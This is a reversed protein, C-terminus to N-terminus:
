VPVIAALGFPARRVPAAKDRALWMARAMRDAEGPDAARGLTALALAATAIVIEDAHEFRRTGRWCEPLADENEIRADAAQVPLAPWEEEVPIGERLGSVHCAKASNREFEGGGGKIVSVNSLGLRQAARQQLERYAPHFVGVVLCRAGFPNLLRALSNAPSRLGLLPRLGLIAHVTPCFASLPLYAFNETRLRTAADGMSATPAIGLTALARAATSREADFGHMLIRVGNQALLLASLVYWAPGRTRGAAYSPWDLDPAADPVAQDPDIRLARAFGALEEASERKYRMLMLLAGLQVPEVEGARIMQMAEYAEDESLSRARGPGVGLIRIWRAFPHDGSAAHSSM